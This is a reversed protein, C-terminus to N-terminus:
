GRVSECMLMIAPEAIAGMLAGRLVNLVGDLRVARRWSGVVVRRGIVVVGGACSHARWWLLARSFAQERLAQGSGHCWVRTATRRGGRRSM